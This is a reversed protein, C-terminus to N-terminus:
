RHTEIGTYLALNFKDVLALAAARLVFKHDRDAATYTQAFYRLFTGHGGAGEHVAAFIDHLQEDSYRPSGARERARTIIREDEGCDCARFTRLDNVGCWVAHGPYLTAVSGCRAADFKLASFFVILHALLFNAPLEHMGAAYSVAAILSNLNRALSEDRMFASLAAYRLAWDVEGPEETNVESM